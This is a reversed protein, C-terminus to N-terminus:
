KSEESTIYEGPADWDGHWVKGKWVRYPEYSEEELNTNEECVKRIVWDGTQFSEGVKLSLCKQDIEYSDMIKNM